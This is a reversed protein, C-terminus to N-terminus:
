SKRNILQFTLFHLNDRATSEDFIGSLKNWSENLLNEAFKKCYNISETSKIIGLAENVLTLDKTKLKLIERLRPAKEKSEELTKIIILTKKGETIDEGLYSRGKAYEESELNIIDDWIQFAIGINEAHSIIAKTIKNDPNVVRLAFKTALRALVSTKNSIMRLYQDQSPIYDSNNWEIDSCQGFHIINMEETYDRFIQHKAKTPIDAGLIMKLPLFYLYSGSNVARDIGYLKYTCPKGRRMESSDEIDDLMLSGAHIMEIAHALPLIDDWPYHGFLDATLLTLSGRWKKGGRNLMDWIPTSLGKTLGDTDYDLSLKANEHTMKVPMHIPLNYADLAELYKSLTGM